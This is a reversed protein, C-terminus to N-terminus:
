RPDTEAALLDRYIIRLKADDVCFLTIRKNGDVAVRAIGRVKSKVEIFERGYWARLKGELDRRLTDCHHTPNWPAWDIYNVVCNMEVMRDDQFKPYFFMTAPYRTDPLKYEVSANSPGEKLLGQKNLDWCHAYFDKSSMGFHLGLFLSDSRIGRALERRELRGYETQICSSFICVFLFFIGIRM